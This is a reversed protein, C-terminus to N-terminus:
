YENVANKLGIAQWVKVPYQRADGQMPLEVTYTEGAYIRNPQLEECKGAQDCQMLRRLLVNSNGSNTFTLNKNTRKVDLKVQADLPRAILLLDYGLLVKLASQKGGQNNGSLEVDGIFPKIALRYISETKGPPQRLIIRLRKRQGPPILLQKPSVLVPATRPDTLEVRVPTASEPNQIHAVSMNLFIKYDATNVIDVDQVLSDASFEIVSKSVTIQAHSSPSGLVLMAVAVLLRKDLRYSSFYNRM